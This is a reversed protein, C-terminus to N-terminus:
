VILSPQPTELKPAYSGQESLVDRLERMVALVNDATLQGAADLKVVTEQLQADSLTYKRTFAQMGARVTEARTQLTPDTTEFMSLILFGQFDQVLQLGAQFQDHHGTLIHSGMKTLVAKAKANPEGIIPVDLMPFEIFKACARCTASHKGNPTM